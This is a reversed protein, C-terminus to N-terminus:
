ISRCIESAAAPASENQGLANSMRVSSPWLIEGHRQQRREDRRRRTATVARTASSM